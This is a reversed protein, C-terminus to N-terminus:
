RPTGSTMTAFGATELHLQILERIAREEEVVFATPADTPAAM